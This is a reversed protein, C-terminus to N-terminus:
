EGTLQFQESATVEQGSLDDTIRFIVSYQGEAFTSDFEIQVEIPADMIEEENNLDILGYDIERLTDSSPPVLDISYSLKASYNGEEETLELGKVQATANLEWGGNLKFAFAETNMVELVKEEESCGFMFLSVLIFLFIKQMM